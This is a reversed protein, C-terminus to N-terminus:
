RDRVFPHILSSRFRYGRLAFIGAVFSNVVYAAAVANLITLSIEHFYDIKYLTGSIAFITVTFCLIAISGSLTYNIADRGVLDVFPNMPKTALWLVWSIIPSFLIFPLSLFCFYLLVTETLNKLNLAGDIMLMGPLVITMLGIPIAFVAHLLM